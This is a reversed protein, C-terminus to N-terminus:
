YRYPSLFSIEKSHLGGRGGNDDGNEDEDDDSVGDDLCSSTTLDNQLYLQFKGSSCGEVHLIRRLRASMGNKMKRGNQSRM